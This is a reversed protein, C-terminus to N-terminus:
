GKEKKRSAAAIAHAQEFWSPPPRKVKLALACEIASLPLDRPYWAEVYPIWMHEYNDRTSTWPILEGFVSTKVFLFVPDGRRGFPDLYYFSDLSHALHEDSVGRLDFLCVYGRRRGYSNESQPFTFGLKGDANASIAGSHRIGEFGAVSTVHFVTERLKPLVVTQLNEYRATIEEIRLPTTM